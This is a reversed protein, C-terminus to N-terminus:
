AWDELVELVQAHGECTPGTVDEPLADAGGRVVYPLWSLARDYSHHRLGQQVAQQELVDRHELLGMAQQQGPGIVVTNM